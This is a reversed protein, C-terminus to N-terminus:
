AANTTTSANKEIPFKKKKKLINMQLFLLVIFTEPSYKWIDESAFIYNPKVSISMEQHFPTNIHGRWMQPVEDPAHIYIKFGQSTGACIYDLNDVLDQLTVILGNYPGTALSSYPFKKSTYSRNFGREASWNIENSSSSNSQSFFFITLNSNTDLSLQVRNFRKKYLAQQEIANFTFCIGEEYLYEKFM